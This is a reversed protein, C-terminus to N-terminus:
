HQYFYHWNVQYHSNLTDLLQQQPIAERPYINNIEIFCRGFGASKRWNYEWPMAANDCSPCTMPADGDAQLWSNVSNKWNELAAGCHPCRPAFTHEGAHFEISRNRTNLRVSCFPQGKDGPELRIDPACGLFAVLDLFREGPLFDADGHYLDGILQVSRLLEALGQEDPVTWGPDAPSLVLLSNKM